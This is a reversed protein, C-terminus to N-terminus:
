TMHLPILPPFFFVRHTLAMSRLYGLRYLSMLNYKVAPSFPIHRAYSLSFPRWFGFFITNMPIGRDIKAKENCEQGQEHKMYYSGRAQALIHLGTDVVNHM